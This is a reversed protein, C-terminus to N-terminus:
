PHVGDLGGEIERIREYGASRLLEAARRSRIGSQCFLLLPRDRPVTDLIRDLVSLPRHLAGSLTGLEYESTERVDILLEDDALLPAALCLDPVEQPISQAGRLACGACGERRELRTKFFRMELADYFLLSGQLSEGIGLLIKIAETAQLTGIVGPLVGLVGTDACGLAGRPAQPFVCRYCPLTAQACFVGLQGEFRDIAGSVLPRSSAVCADNLLYRTTFGDSADIVVDYRSVQEVANAATLRLAQAEIRIEPNLDRLRALASEAKLRGLDATGHLIQRQLNSLEVQDSDIIGIRGVGAAALYLAAPSGLGGAGVVLASSLALRRQGEPGVEALSLHRDYRSSM